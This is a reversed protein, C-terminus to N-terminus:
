VTINDFEAAVYLQLSDDEPIYRETTPKLVPIESRRIVGDDPSFM